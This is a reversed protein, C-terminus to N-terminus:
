SYDFTHNNYDNISKNEEQTVFNLIECIIKKTVCM